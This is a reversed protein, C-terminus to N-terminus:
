ANSIATQKPLAFLFRNGGAPLREYGCRGGQLDVLRQVISLGLGHSSSRQHLRHFPQFLLPRKEEPVGPGDDDVFFIWESHTEAWGADVKPSAGGHAVANSILNGWIVELWAPVGDVEPWAEAETLTAGKKMLQREVPQRAAWVIRGMDLREKPKPEVTAKLLFSVRDILRLESQCSDFLPTILAVDEPSQESLIEQLLEATTFIGSLPSRLDHSIRRGMTHLDGRFRANEQSLEFQAVAAKFVHKLVPATCEELPVVEFGGATIEGGLIVVAWRPLGDLKTSEVALQVEAMEPEFLVVLDTGTHAAGLLAADVNPAWQIETEPFAESAAQTAAALVADNKSGSLFYITLMQRVSEAM